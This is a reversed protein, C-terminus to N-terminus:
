QIAPDISRIIELSNDTSGDNVVLIEFDCGAQLLASEITAAITSAANFCPIIISVQRM